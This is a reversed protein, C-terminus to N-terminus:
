RFLSLVSQPSQNAISLSQIGLQQQVQLAQLKASAEEMDADVMTGIGAKLSDSLRGIFDSQIEIRSQSSGFEAAADISNQILTEINDLAADAGSDTTVDINDLGFLGGSATGGAQGNESLTMTAGATTDSGDYDVMVVWEGADNQTVKTAVGTENGADIASKLGKAVDEMTEGKGAIYNFDNGNVSIRYSDGDNVAANKDLVVEEARQELINSNSGTAASVNQTTDGNNVAAITNTGGSNWSVNFTEFANTNIINLQGTGGADEDATIGTMGLANIQGAADLMMADRDANHAITLSKGNITLTLDDTGAGAITLELQNAAGTSDIASASATINAAIATDGTGYVGATTTLDQRSVSIDSAKVTGDSSRDLSALVNVDETGTVLNLGNFQAAGVVSKIQNTLAQIDTQIKERDVNEEQAAVIKGKMETLLDTVTEAANRAVAVTSEGLALSDSIGEFGKVDSEMVKSIAWVASNDKASSISKGTSIENQLSNLNNNIGKLTQLAVMSATNTLISTM